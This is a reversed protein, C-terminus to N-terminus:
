VNSWRRLGPRPPDVVGICNGSSGYEQMLSAAVVEAKNAIFTANTIGNNTANFRADEISEEVIDVGIVQKVRAAM